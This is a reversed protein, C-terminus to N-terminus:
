KYADEVRTHKADLIHNISATPCTQFIKRPEICLHCSMASFETDAIRARRSVLMKAESTAIPM